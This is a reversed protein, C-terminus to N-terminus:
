IKGFTKVIRDEIGDGVWKYVGEALALNEVEAKFLKEVDVGPGPATGAGSLMTTATVDRTDVAALRSGLDVLLSLRRRVTRMVSYLVSFM